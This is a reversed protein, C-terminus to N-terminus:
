LMFVFFIIRGLLLQNIVYFIEAFLIVIYVLMITLIQAYLIEQIQNFFEDVCYTM